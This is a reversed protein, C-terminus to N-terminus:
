ERAESWAGVVWRGDHRALLVEIRWAAPRVGGVRGVSRVWWAMVPGAAGGEGAGAEAQVQVAFGGQGVATPGEGSYKADAALAVRAAAVGAEAIAQAALEASRVDARAVVTATRTVLATGLIGLAALVLLAALLAGGRRTGGDVRM